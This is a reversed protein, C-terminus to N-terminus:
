IYKFLMIMVAGAVLYIALRKENWRPILRLHLYNAYFMWVAASQLHVYVWQFTM